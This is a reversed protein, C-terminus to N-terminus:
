RTDRRPSATVIWTSSAARVTGDGTRLNEFAKRLAEVVKPKKKVGTEGALRIIEGAPGLAMAFEIADDLDRGITIAADVREFSIREFGAKALQDSVLDPGAMSFPGPGCTVADEKKEEEEPILERVVREAMHLWLNDERRRWVVMCLKGGPALSRHINRLAQVPSAFFMTGFRSFVVDYPGGLDDTQVDRVGFRVNAVGDERAERGAGEVFRPAGDVGTAEGSPAVLQALARTTDGFGCGVDLVRGGARLGLREIAIDGHVSLGQTVIHRFRVFKDFLVTDWAEIAEANPGGYTGM